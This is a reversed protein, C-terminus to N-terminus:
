CDLKRESMWNGDERSAIAFMEMYAKLIFHQRGKAFKLCGSLQQM